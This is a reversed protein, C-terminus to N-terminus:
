PILEYIVWATRAFNTSPSATYLGCKSAFTSLYLPNGPFAMYSGTFIYGGTASQAVLDGFKYKSYYSSAATDFHSAM